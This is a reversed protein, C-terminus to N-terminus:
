INYAAEQQLQLPIRCPAMKIPKANGTDIQHMTLHTQGLDTDGTSFVSTHRHLLERISHLEACKFGRKELSFQVVITNVSWSPTIGEESRKEFDVTESDVEVETFLTAIEMGRKLIKNEDTMNIVRVPMVGQDITCVVHAVKVDCHNLLSSSPELMGKTYKKPLGEVAWPIIGECHPSVVTDYHVTVLKPQNADYLLLLPLKKGM